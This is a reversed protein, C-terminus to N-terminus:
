NGGFNNSKLRLYLCKLSQLCDSIALEFGYLNYRLSRLRFRIQFEFCSCLGIPQLPFLITFVITNHCICYNIVFFLLIFLQRRNRPQIVNNANAQEQEFPPPELYFTSPIPVIDDKLPDYQSTSASDFIVLYM